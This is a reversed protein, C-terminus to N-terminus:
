QQSRRISRRYTARESITGVYVQNCHIPPHKLIDCVTQLLISLANSLLVSSGPLVSEQRPQQWLLPHLPIQCPTHLLELHALMPRLHWSCLAQLKLLGPQFLPQTKSNYHAAPIHPEVCMAFARGRIRMLNPLLHVHAAHSAPAGARCTYPRFQLVRM